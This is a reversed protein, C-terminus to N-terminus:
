MVHKYVNYTMEVTKEWSFYRKVFDHGLCRLEAVKEPHELLFMLKKQLDGSDQSRHVFGYLQNEGQIIDYM